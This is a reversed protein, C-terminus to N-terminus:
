ETHSALNHWWISPFSFPALGQMSAADEPHDRLWAESLAIVMQHVMTEFAANGIKEKICGEYVMEAHEIALLAIIGNSCEHASRFHDLALRLGQEHTGGKVVRGKNAFSIVVDNEWSHFAWILELKLGDQEGSIHVPQHHIQYPAIITDFLDALGRESHYEVTEAGAAVQFKTGAHLFSLRRFYSHLNQISLASAELIERDAKFEIRANIGVELPQPAPLNEEQVEQPEGKTYRREAITEAMRFRLSCTQSLAVVTALGVNGTSFVLDEEVFTADSCVVFSGDTGGEIRVKTPERVLCEGVVGVLLHIHGFFSTSGIYMAPRLRIHEALSMSAPDAPTDDTPASM